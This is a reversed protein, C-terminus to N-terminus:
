RARRAAWVTAGVMVFLGPVLAVTLLRAYTVRADTLRLPRDVALNPSLAVVEDSLTLWRVAQLFLQANGAERIFANTMFDVDGIVVMRSRRIEDGELRSRDAAVAVTIPGATDTDPDFDAAVPETELYSLASTEALRSFTLGDGEDARDAIVGQVGPFYTPPLRRTIPNASSYTSVLPSVVDGGITLDADGEFVLGRALRLEHTALLRSLDATSAPDALVLVSGDQSAFRSLARAAAATYQGTPNVVALAACAAPVEREALLDVEEVLYGDGILIEAARGVSDSALADLSAEGFGTTFCVTQLEDRTLRALASTIDAESSGPAVEVRGDMEVALGGFAPDIGLREVEGPRERPDIVRGDIRRDLDRYREILSAAEVRGPDDSRLLVTITVDADIRDVVERTQDTLTLLDNETLDFFRDERDALYVLLAALAIVGVSRATMSFLAARRRRM